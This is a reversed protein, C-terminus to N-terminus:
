SYRFDQDVTHGVTALIIGMVSGGTSCRTRRPERHGAPEIRLAVVV